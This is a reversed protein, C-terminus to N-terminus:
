KLDTAIARIANIKSWFHKNNPAAAGPQSSFMAVVMNANRNIYVVQGHIGVAMYEGKKEDLVWWMNRYAVYPTSQYKPNNRMKQRDKDSIDLTQDVWKAPLIQEGQFKGRNLILDGFRAADRLTSVFGGGATVMYARDVVWSADHETKLKSWINERVFRDVPMGSVRALLWGLMDTNPSNYDFEDGPKVKPDPKVFRAVFDHIGYVDTSEPQADQAGPFFALGLAPGYYKVFDSDPDTYNEKPMTGTSHNLVNQLTVREYASGKLEPIYKAPSDELKVKGQELLLGFASSTLSKTASFWIHSYDKSLGNFYKEFVIAGDKLVLFGDAHNEELIQDVTRNKGDADRVKLKGISEDQKEPYRYIDGARPVMVMHLPAGINRFAWTSYPWTRYNKYTVQEEAKPPVTTMVNTVSASVAGAWLSALVFSMAQIGPYKSSM